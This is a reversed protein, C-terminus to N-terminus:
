LKLGGATYRYRKKSKSLKRHAKKKYLPPLKTSNNELFKIASEMCENTIELPSLDDKSLRSFSETISDITVCDYESKLSDIRTNIMERTEFMPHQKQPYWNLDWDRKNFDDFEISNRCSECYWAGSGHSYWLAPEAQCKQRNCAGGEQGKNLKDPGNYTGYSM